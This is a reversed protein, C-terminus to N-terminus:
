QNELELNNEQLDFLLSDRQIEVIINALNERINLPYLRKEENIELCMNLGNILALDNHYRNKFQSLYLNM